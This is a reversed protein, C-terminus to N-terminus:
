CRGLWGLFFVEQTKDTECINVYRGFQLGNLCKLVAPQRPYTNLARLTVTGINGDMQLDSFQQGNKNLLNLARQLLIVAPIVGFNVASDYVENAVDQDSILSGKIANWFNNLYFDKVLNQLSANQSLDLLFTQSEKASDIIAWGEWSPWYRRSIGCYTEKGRDASSNSYGGEFVSTREYAPDFDAM